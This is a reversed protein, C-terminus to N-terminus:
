EPAKPAPGRYLVRDNNSYDVSHFCYSGDDTEFAPIFGGDGIAVDEIPVAVFGLSFKYVRIIRSVQIENPRM